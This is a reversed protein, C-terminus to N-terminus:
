AGHRRPRHARRWVRPEVRPGNGRQRAETPAPTNEGRGVPAQWRGGGTTTAAALVQQVAM